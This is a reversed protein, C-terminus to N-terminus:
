SVVSNWHFCGLTQLYNFCYYKTLDSTKVATVIFFPTKQSTVGHPTVDWFVGNKLLVKEWSKLIVSFTTLFVLHHLYLETEGNVHRCCRLQRSIFTYFSLCIVVSPVTILKYRRQTCKCICKPTGLPSHQHNIQLEIKNTIEVLVNLLIHLVQIIRHIHTSLLAIRYSIPLLGRTAQLFSVWM